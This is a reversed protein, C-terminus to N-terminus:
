PRGVRTCFERLAKRIEERSSIKTREGPGISLVSICQWPKIEPMARDATRVIRLMAISVVKPQPEEVVPPDPPEPPEVSGFLQLAVFM